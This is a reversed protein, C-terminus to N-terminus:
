GGLGGGELREGAACFRHPPREPEREQRELVRSQPRGPAHGGACAITIILSRVVSSM